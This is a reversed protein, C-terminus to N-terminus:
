GARGPSSTAAPRRPGPCRRRACRHCSSSRYGPRGRRRHWSRAARGRRPRRWRVVRLLLEDVVEDGRPDLDHVEVPVVQDLLRAVITRRVSCGTTRRITRPATSSTCPTRTAPVPDLPQGRVRAALARAAACADRCAGRAAGHGRRRQGAVPDRGARRVAHHPGRQRRVTQAAHDQPRLSTGVPLRERADRGAARGLFRDRSRTPTSSRRTRTSSWRAASRPQKFIYMSQLLLPDVFGIDAAIERFAPRRSFESFVPDLDHEAHGSRTSPTSRPSVCTGAVPASATRPAEPTTGAAQRALVDPGPRTFMYVGGGAAAVALAWLALRTSSNM